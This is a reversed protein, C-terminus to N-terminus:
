QVTVDAEVLTVNGDNDFAKLVLGYAGTASAGPIIIYKLQTALETFNWLTDATGALAFTEDYLKTGSSENELYIMVSDMDINDTITGTMAITDNANVAIVSSMNPSTVTIVPQGSQTITLDYQYINSELGAEDVATVVIHYPGASATSSIDISKTEYVATGSINYILQTSFPTNRHGHGDFANHIDVKFQKLNTNDKIEAYFTITTGAGVSTQEAAGNVRVLFVSPAITDERDKKCSNLVTITTLFLVFIAKQM